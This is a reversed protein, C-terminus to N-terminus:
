LKSPGEDPERHAKHLGELAKLDELAESIRLLGKLAEYTVGRKVDSKFVEHAQSPQWVVMSLTGDVFGRRIGDSLEDAASKM